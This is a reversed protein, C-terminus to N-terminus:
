GALGPVGALGLKRVGAGASAFTHMDARLVSHMDFFHSRLLLDTEKRLCIGDVCSLRRLTQQLRLQGVLLAFGHDINGGVLRRVVFSIGHGADAKTNTEAIDIM